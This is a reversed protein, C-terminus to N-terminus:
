EKLGSGSKKLAKKIDTVAKAGMGELELLQAETKEALDAITAIGANELAHAVRAPLALDALGSVAESVDSTGAETTETHAAGEHFSVLKSFQDVLIRAGKMFAEEPDITGDTEIVFRLRDYDTREGVRMNEVEYNIKRIPTFIADLAVTGIETKEKKKEEVPVYGFGKEITLEVEFTSKKDTLTAIHASPDVVKIQSSGKIDAATVEREGHVNISVVEPENTYKIFRLRKINLLLQVVDEMVGPVTSFEHSVGKIKVVTAAAGELSSLLVRRLANGLTMGYGPYLGAIEIVAKFGDKTVVHPKEPM